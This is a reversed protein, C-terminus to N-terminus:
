SNNSAYCKLWNQALSAWLYKEAQAQAGFVLNEQLAKDKLLKVIGAALAQADGPEVLLGAAGNQLMEARDGVNGTVVPVGLALSEVIKLPSRAKAVAEDRVPDVSCQALRFYNAVNSPLVEGVFTVKASLGLEQVKRQLLVRDDGTGVLLLHAKPLEKEVIAFAELLLGVSHSIQSLTGVYIIVQKEQLNLANRLGLISREAPEPTWGAAIGNPVYHIRDPSIGLKQYREQLFHTNVTLATAYKPLQDEWLQVLKKQWLGSFRNAEAEYDDCDVFLPCRLGKAALFGALGNIPQPKCVHIADAGLRFSLFTLAFAAQLGVQSLKPATFYRRQGALGYVHMQAVYYVVVGHYTKQRQIKPLKDYSHHLLLLSVNHGLKALEQALPLWRGRPSPNDLSSTSLFLLKLKHKRQSKLLIEGFQAM